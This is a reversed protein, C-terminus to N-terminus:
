QQPPLLRLKGNAMRIAAVRGKATNGLIFLRESSLSFAWQQDKPHHRNTRM